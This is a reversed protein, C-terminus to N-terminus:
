QKRTECYPSSECDRTKRPLYPRILAFAHYGIDLFPRVIPQKANRSLWKYRPLMDWIAIFADVGTQVEGNARKIHMVKHVEHPDLGESEASFASNTIDVFNLNESGSQKRYHDIERSCLPCLGDFFISINANQSMM